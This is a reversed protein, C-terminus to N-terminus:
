SGDDDVAQSLLRYDLCTTRANLYEIPLTSALFYRLGFYVELNWTALSEENGLPSLVPQHKIIRCISRNLFTPSSPNKERRLRTATWSPVAGVEIGHVSQVGEATRLMESRSGCEQWDTAQIRGYYVGQRVHAHRLHTQFPAGVAFACKRHYTMPGHGLAKVRRKM